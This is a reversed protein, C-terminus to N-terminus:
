KTKQRNFLSCITVNKNRNRGDNPVHTNQLPIHELHLGSSAYGHLHRRQASFLTLKRTYKEEEIVTM